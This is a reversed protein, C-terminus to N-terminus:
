QFWSNQLIPLILKPSNWNKLLSIMDPQGCKKFIVTLQNGLTKVSIILIDAVQQKSNGVFYYKMTDIEHATCGKSILYDYFAIITHMALVKELDTGFHQVEIIKDAMQIYHINNKDNYFTIDLLRQADPTNGHKMQLLQFIRGNKILLLTRKM